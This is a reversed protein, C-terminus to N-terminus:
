AMVAQALDTCALWEDRDCRYRRSCRRWCRRSRCCQACGIHSGGAEGRVPATYAARCTLPQIHGRARRKDIIHGPVLIQVDAVRRTSVNGPQRPARIM